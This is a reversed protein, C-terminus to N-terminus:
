LYRSVGLVDAQSTAVLLGAAKHPRTRVPSGCCAAALDIGIQGLRHLTCLTFHRMRNDDFRIDYPVGM